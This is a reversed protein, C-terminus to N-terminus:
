YKGASGCLQVAQIAAQRFGDKGSTEMDITWNADPHETLFARIASITKARLITAFNVKAIGSAIAKKIEEEQIGTGGHLVLPIKVAKAISIIRGHDLKPPFPYFGHANGVSVALCDAGTREVFERAKEADTMHANEAKEGMGTTQGITGLEAECSIGASHAVEAVKASIRVNEEFPLASGDFMVSTFGARICQVATQFGDGHDLHIAIRVKKSKGLTMAMCVLTEPSSFAIEQPISQMIVPSRTEEAAELIAKVNELNSCNFAPVAYRGCAELLLQKMPVLEMVGERVLGSDM